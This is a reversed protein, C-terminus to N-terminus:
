KVTLSLSTQSSTVYGARTFTVKVSVKKGKMSSLIKLSRATAKSIPKGNLLWAYTIKTGSVQNGASAKLTNGLKATGTIKPKAYAIKAPQVVGSEGSITVTEYDLKEASVEFTITKGIDQLRPVFQDTSAGVVEVGGVSWRYTLVAGIDWEGPFPRLSQNFVPTGLIPNAPVRTFNFSRLHQPVTSQKVTLELYKDSGWCRVAGSVRKACTHYEGLSIETVVGLDKPVSTQGSFSSDADQYNGWCKLFGTQLIACMHGGGVTASKVAGLDKPLQRYSGPSIANSTCSIGNNIIVCQNTGPILSDAIPMIESPAFEGEFTTCHVQRSEKLACINSEGNSALQIWDSGDVFILDNRLGVTWCLIERTEFLACANQFGLVIQTPNVIQQPVDKILGWCQVEGTELVACTSYSGAFVSKVPGLNPPPTAQLVNSRQNKNGFVNSGWCGIEGINTVYCNHYDGSVLTSTTPDSTEQGSAPAGGLTGSLVLVVTLFIVIKNRM